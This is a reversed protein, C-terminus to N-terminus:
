EFKEPVRACKPGHDPASRALGAKRCKGCCYGQMEAEEAPAFKCKKNKCTSVPVAEAKVKAAPKGKQPGSSAVIRGADPMAGINPFCQEIPLKAHKNSAHEQLQVKKSTVSFTQRCVGCQFAASAAADAKGGGKNQKAKAKAEKERKKIKILLKTTDKM